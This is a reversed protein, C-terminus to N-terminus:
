EVGGSDDGIRVFGGGGKGGGHEASRGVGRRERWNVRVRGWVDGSREGRGGEDATSRNRGKGVVQWIEEQRRWGGGWLELTTGLGSWEDARGREEWMKELGGWEGGRWEVFSWEVGGWETGM